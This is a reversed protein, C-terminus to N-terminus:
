EKEGRQQSAAAAQQRRDQRLLLLLENVEEPRLVWCSLGREGGGKQEQSCLRAVGCADIYPAAAVRLLFWITACRPSHLAVDNVLVLCCPRRSPIPSSLRRREM